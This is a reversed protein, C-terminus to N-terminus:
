LLEAIGLIGGPALMVMSILFSARGWFVLKGPGAPLCTRPSYSPPVNVVRWLPPGFKWIAPSQMNGINFSLSYLAVFQPEARLAGALGALASSVVYAIVARMISCGGSGRAGNERIGRLSWGFPSNILARVFTCRFLAALSYFRRRGRNLAFLQYV